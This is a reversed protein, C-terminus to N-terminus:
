CLDEYKDYFEEVEKADPGDDGLIPWKFTPTVKVVSPQTKTGKVEMLTKTQRDLAAALSDTAGASGPM